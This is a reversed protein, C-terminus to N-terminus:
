CSQFTSPECIATFKAAVNVTSTGSAGRTSENGTFTLTGTVRDQAEVITLTGSTATFGRSNITTRVTIVVAFASTASISFTGVTPRTTNYIVNLTEGTSGEERMEIVWRNTGSEKYFTACGWLDAAPVDSSDLTGTFPNECDPGGSDRCSIGLALFVILHATRRM